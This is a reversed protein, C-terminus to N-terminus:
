KKEGFLQLIYLFLNIVDLYLNLAAYCYDDISFQVKHRGGIMLQTDYVIYLSFLLAGCGSYVTNLPNMVDPGAGALSLVFGVIAVSLMTFLIAMLYPGFGTFDSKTTWAYVTMMAFISVTILAAMAVSAGTYGACVLGIVVGETATFGFLFMYNQPFTRLAKQCCVISCLFVIQLAMVGYFLPMHEVIWRRPLQMVPYAIVATLLLQASLISYVKRVFGMRISREVNKNLIVQGQEETPLFQAEM